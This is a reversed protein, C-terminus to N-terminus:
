DRWDCSLGHSVMTFGLDELLNGTRRDKIVEKGCKPCKM